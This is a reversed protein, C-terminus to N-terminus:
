HVHKETLFKRIAQTLEKCGAEAQSVAEIVNHTGIEGVIETEIIEDKSPLSAVRVKTPSETFPVWQGDVLGVTCSVIFDTMQIGADILALSGALTAADAPSKGVNVISISIRILTKYYEEQCITSAFTHQMKHQLGEFREKENWVDEIICEIVGTMASDQTEPEIPGYVAAFVKSDNLEVYASGAAGQIDGIRLGLKRM